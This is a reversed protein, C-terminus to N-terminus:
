EIGYRERRSRACEGVQDFWGDQVEFAAQTVRMQPGFM